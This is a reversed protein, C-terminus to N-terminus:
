KADHFLIGLTHRHGRHLASVGHRVNSRYFGRTGRVPRYRTTVVIAEGKAPIIVNPTSQARPRQVVLV